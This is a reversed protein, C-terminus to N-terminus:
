IAAILMESQVTAFSMSVPFPVSPRAQAGATRTEGYRVSPELQEQRRKPMGQWVAMINSLSDKAAFGITLGVVM